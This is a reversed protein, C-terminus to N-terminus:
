RTIGIRTKRLYADAGVLYHVGGSPVAEFVWGCFPVSGTNGGTDVIEEKFGSGFPEDAYKCGQPLGDSLLVRYMSQVNVLVTIATGSFHYSLIKLAGRRQKWSNM